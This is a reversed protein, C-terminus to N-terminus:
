QHGAGFRNTQALDDDRQRAFRYFIDMQGHVGGVAADRQDRGRVGPQFDGAGTGDGFQGPYTVLLGPQAPLGALCRPAEHLPLAM